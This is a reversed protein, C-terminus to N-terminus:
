GVFKQDFQFTPVSLEEEYGIQDSQTLVSKRTQEIVESKKKRQKETV